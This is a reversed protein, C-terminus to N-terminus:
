RYLFGCLSAPVKSRNGTPHLQPNQNVKLGGRNYNQGTSSPEDPEPVGKQGRSACNPAPYQALHPSARILLKNKHLVWYVRTESYSTWCWSFLGFKEIFHNPMFLETHELCLPM